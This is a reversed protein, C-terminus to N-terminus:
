ARPTLARRREGAAADADALLAGIGVMFFGLLPPLLLIMTLLAVPLNAALGIVAGVTVAGRRARPVVGGGVLLRVTAVLALAGVAFGGLFLAADGYLSGPPTREGVVAALVLGGGIAAVGGAISTAVFLM